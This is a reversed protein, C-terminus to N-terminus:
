AFQLPVQTFVLVSGAFQPPQPWAHSGPSDHEFPCHTSM